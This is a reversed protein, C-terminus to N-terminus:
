QVILTLMANSSKGSDDAGTFNLQYSGPQAGGKIKIKFSVSDGEITPLEEPVKIGPLKVTPPSLTIKGTFGNTRALNLRVLIKTGVATTVTPHEFSMSFDPQLAPVVCNRVGTSFFQNSGGGVLAFNCGNVQNSIAGGATVPESSDNLNSWLNKDIDL